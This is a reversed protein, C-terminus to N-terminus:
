REASPRYVKATPQRNPQVDNLMTLLNKMEDLRRIIEDLREEIATLRASVTANDPGQIRRSPAPANDM